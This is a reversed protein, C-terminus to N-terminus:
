GVKNLENYMPFFLPCSVGAAAVNSSNQVVTSALCSGLNNPCGMLDLLWQFLICTGNDKCPSAAGTVLTPLAPVFDISTYLVEPKSPTPEVLIKFSYEKPKNVLLSTLSFLYVIVLIQATSIQDNYAENSPFHSVCSTLPSAKCSPLAPVSNAPPRFNTNHDSM